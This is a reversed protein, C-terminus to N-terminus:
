QPWFFISHHFDSGPYGTLVNKQVAAITSLGGKQVQPVMVAGSAAAMNRERLARWRSMVVLYVLQTSLAVSIAVWTSAATKSYYVFLTFIGYWLATTPFNTLALQYVFLPGPPLGITM